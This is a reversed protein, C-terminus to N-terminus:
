ATHKNCQSEKNKRIARAESCKKKLNRKKQQQQQQADTKNAILGTNSQLLQIVEKGRIGGWTRETCDESIQISVPSCYNKWHPDVSIPFQASQHKEM